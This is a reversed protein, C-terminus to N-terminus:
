HKRIILLWSDQVQPVNLAAPDRQRTVLQKVRRTNTPGTITKGKVM